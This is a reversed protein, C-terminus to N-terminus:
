SVGADPASRPRTTLQFTISLAGASCRRTSSTTRSAASPRRNLRRKMEKSRVSVEQVKKSKKNYKKVKRNAANRLRKLDELIFAYGRFKDVLFRTVKQLIDKTRNRERLGYKRLLEGREKGKVKVQV